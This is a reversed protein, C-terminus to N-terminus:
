SIPTFARVFPPTPSIGSWPTRRKRQRGSSITLSWGRGRSTQLGHISHECPTSTPLSGRTVLTFSPTTSSSSIALDTDRLGSHWFNAISFARAHLPIAYLPTSMSRRGQLHMDDGVSVYRIYKAVEEENQENIFVLPYHKPNSGDYLLWDGGPHETENEDSSISIHSPSPPASTIRQLLSPPEDETMVVQALYPEILDTFASVYTLHAIANYEGVTIPLPLNASHEAMTEIPNMLHNTSRMMIPPLPNNMARYRRIARCLAITGNIQEIPPIAVELEVHQIEESEPPSPPFRALDRDIESPTPSPEPSPLVDGELGSM